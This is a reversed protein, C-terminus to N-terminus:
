QKSGLFARLVRLSGVGLHPARLLEQDSMERAQGVTLLPNFNYLANRVRSPLPADKILLSNPLPWKPAAEAPPRRAIWEADTRAALVIFDAAGMGKEKAAWEILEYDKSPMVLKVTKDAM